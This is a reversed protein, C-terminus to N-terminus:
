TFNSPLTGLDSYQHNKTKIKITFTTATQMSKLADFMYSFDSSTEVSAPKARKDGM